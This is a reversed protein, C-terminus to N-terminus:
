NLTTGDLVSVLSIHTVSHRYAAILTGYICYAANTLLSMVWDLKVLEERTKLDTEKGTM